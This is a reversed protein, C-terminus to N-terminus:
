ISRSVDIFSFGFFDFLGYFVLDGGIAECKGNVVFHRKMLTHRGRAISVNEGNM